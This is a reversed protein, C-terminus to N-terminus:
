SATVRLLIQEMNFYIHIYVSVYLNQKITEELGQEMEEVPIMYVKFIAWSTERFPWLFGMFGDFGQKESFKM